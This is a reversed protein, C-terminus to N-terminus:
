TRPLPAYQINDQERLAGCLCWMLIFAIMADVVCIIFHIYEYRYTIMCGIAETQYSQVKLLTCNTLTSFTYNYFRM